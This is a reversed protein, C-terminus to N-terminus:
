ASPEGGSPMEELAPPAPTLVVDVFRGTIRKWDFREDVVRRGESALRGALVDDELLRVVADAFAGPEDAVLAHRGDHLGLGALGITTGVIPRGAALAELAKLRTGSGIRVPVLAVRAARLWPVTSAVDAEVSVGPLAALARVERTPRAGVVAVTAGPVRARVLPLIETCFWRAGDVNPSTYMAGIFVMTPKQPLPTPVFRAGDVGNPVVVAGPPNGLSRLDNESVAILRDYGGLGGRQWRTAKQADRRYLWRQRRGKTVAAEQAAMDSAVNHLTLIWTQNPTTRTAVLGALGVCEVIVADGEFSRVAEAMARRVPAFAAVERPERSGTALWVDRARRLPRPRRSWDEERVALESVSRVAQRVTSDTVTDSVLLSVDAVGALALLMHAQRIHGGARDFSPAM